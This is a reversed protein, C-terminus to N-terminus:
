SSDFSVIEAKFRLKQDALALAQIQLNESNRCIKEIYAFELYAWALAQNLM